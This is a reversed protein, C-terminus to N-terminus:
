KMNLPIARSLAAHYLPPLLVALHFGHVGFKLVDDIGGGADHKEAPRPHAGFGADGVEAADIPQVVLTVGIGRLGDQGGGEEALVRLLKVAEVAVLHEGQLCLGVRCMEEEGLKFFGTFEGGDDGLVDVPQMLLGAAFGHQLEVAGDVAVAAQLARLEERRFVDSVRLADRFTGAAADDLRFDHEVLFPQIVIYEGGGHVVDALRIREDDGAGAQRHVGGGTQHVVETPLVEDEDVAIHGGHVILGIQDDVVAHPLHEAGQM